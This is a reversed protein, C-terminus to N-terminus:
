ERLYTGKRKKKSKRWSRRRQDIPEFVGLHMYIIAKAVQSPELQFLDAVRELQDKANQSIRFAIRINKGYKEHIDPEKL